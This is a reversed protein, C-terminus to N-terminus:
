SEELSDCLAFFNAEEKEMVDKPGLMKVFLSEGARVVVVGLMRAGKMAPQRMAGEFDGDLTVVHADQGLVKRTPLKGIEDATAKDLGMQERWRNVNMAMDGGALSITCRTEPHAKPRFAALLFRNPPEPKWTEPRTWTVPKRAPTAGNGKEAGGGHSPDDEGMNLRFSDALARFDAALTGVEEAPGILKFTVFARPLEQLYAIMRAKEITTGFAEYDGSVDVIRAPRGVFTSEELAAVTEETVADADLSMQAYWRQVNGILTNGRKPALVTVYAQVDPAAEVVFNPNRNATAKARSWGKPLDFKFFDIQPPEDTFRLRYADSGGRPVRTRPAPLDVVDTIAVPGEDGCAALGLLCTCLVATAIRRRWPVVRPHGPNM